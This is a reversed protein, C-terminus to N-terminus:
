SLGRKWEPSLADQHPPRRNSRELPCQKSNWVIRCCTNQWFEADFETLVTNCYNCQKLEIDDEHETVFYTINGYYTCAKCHQVHFEVWSYVGEM